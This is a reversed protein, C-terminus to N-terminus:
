LSAELKYTNAAGPVVKFNIKTPSPESEGIPQTMVIRFFEKPSVDAPADYWEMALPLKIKTIRGYALCATPTAWPDAKYDSDVYLSLVQGGLEKSYERKVSLSDPNGNCINGEVTLYVMVKAKIKKYKKDWQQREITVSDVQYVGIEVTSRAVVANDMLDAFSASSLALGLWVSVGLKKVTLM